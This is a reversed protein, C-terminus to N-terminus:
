ERLFPLHASGPSYKRWVTTSMRTDTDMSMLTNMRTDTDMSMLFNRHINMDTGTSINTTM